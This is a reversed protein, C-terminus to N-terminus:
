DPTAAASCVVCGAVTALAGAAAYSAAPLVWNVFAVSSLLLM